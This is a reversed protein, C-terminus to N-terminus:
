RFPNISYKSNDSTNSKINELANLQKKQIELVKNQYERVMASYIQSAIAQTAQSPSPGVRERLAEAQEGFKMREM